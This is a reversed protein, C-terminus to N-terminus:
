VFYVDKYGNIGDNFKYKSYCRKNLVIFQYIKFSIVEVM